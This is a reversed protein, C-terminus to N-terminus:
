AVGLYREKLHGTLPGIGLSAGTVSEMLEDTTKLRGQMHINDHLWGQVPLFNGQRMLDPINQLDRKMRNHIQAAIMHGLTYSPFYGFKGVFWHVDQLCGEANTKPEIGLYKKMSANWADPLDKVELRGAILDRELQTRFLVHLFYTVEDAERRNVTKQVWTRTKYLNEPTMAPDGFRQFLGEARPSLYEFFEKTRGLIMDILLAQSEHVAAGMDQGVPQYRWIDRPLGQIYIGHGGEHLASKMTGLFNNENACKIVLRTDDPTGGEVPNHGTEYLGGRDFDFGMVKLLSRNLWMQQDTSFPGKLPVPPSMQAQKELIQPLLEGLKDELRGFLYDVDSLRAGPIYERMLAQYASDEKHDNDRLCKSEGIKRQLDIMDELFPRASEWDNNKLVESHTKRGEYSLYARREMLDPDVQCHHRYMNEMERLNARDWDDWDRPAKKEHAHAEEILAAVEENALEEHMRRYLFAMQGLRSKYAGEPMATLFDRGLMEIVASFRGTDRFRMKLDMYAKSPHAEYQKTKSADEPKNPAPLKLPAHREKKWLSGMFHFFSGKSLRGILRNFWKFKFKM